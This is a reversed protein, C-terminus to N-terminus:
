KKLNDESGEKGIDNEIVCSMNGDIALMLKIAENILSFMGRNEERLDKISNIMEITNECCISYGCEIHNPNLPNRMKDEESGRKLPSPVRTNDISTRIEESITQPFLMSDGDDEVDNLYLEEHSDNSLNNLMKSDIVSQLSQIPSPSFLDLHLLELVRTTSVEKRNRNNANGGSVVMGKLNSGYVVHRGDYAKYLTFLRRNKTMHKTCGSDVIWDYPLLDCKLCVQHPYFLDITLELNLTDLEMIHARTIDKTDQKWEELPHNPVIIAFERKSPAKVLKTGLAIEVAEELSIPVM